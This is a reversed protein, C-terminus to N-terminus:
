PIKRALDEGHEDEGHRRRFRGDAKGDEDNIEAIAATDLNVVDVEHLASGHGCGADNEKRKEARDDCAEEAAEDAIPGRLQHGAGAHHQGRDAGPDDQEADDAGLAVLDIDQGPDMDAGELHVPGKPDIRQGADHHEHHRRDRGQDVDIRDAVHGVVRMHRPEHRIKDSKVKKM